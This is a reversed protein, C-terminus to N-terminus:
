INAWVTPGWVAIQVLALAAGLHRIPDEESRPADRLAGDLGYTWAHYPCQITTRCEDDIM